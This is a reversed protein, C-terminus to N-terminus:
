KHSDKQNEAGERMMTMFVDFDTVAILIQGFVALNSNEDEDMKEKLALYFDDVGVKMENTIYSEMKEEFLAKYENFVTTYELKYEESDLAVIHCNKKVFSEFTATLEDSGFFYEQFKELDVSRRAESGGKVNDNKHDSKAGAGQQQSDNQKAEDPYTPGSTASATTISGEKYSM